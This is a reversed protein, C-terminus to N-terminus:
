AHTSARLRAPILYHDRPNSVRPSRIHPSRIRPTPYYAILADDRPYKTAKRQRVSRLERCRAFRRLSSALSASPDEELTCSIRRSREPHCPISQKRYISLCHPGPPPSSSLDDALVPYNVLITIMLSFRITSLFRSRHHPNTYEVLITINPLFWPPRHPM